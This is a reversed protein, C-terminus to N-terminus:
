KSKSCVADALTSTVSGPSYRTAPHSTGSHVVKGTAMQGTFFTTTDETIMEASCDITAFSTTSQWVEDRVVSQPEVYNALLWFSVTDGVRKVSKADYYFVLENGKSAFTWQPSRAYVPASNLLALIAVLSRTKM